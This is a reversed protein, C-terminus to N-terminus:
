FVTAVGPFTMGSGTEIFSTKKSIQLNITKWWPTSHNYSPGGLHCQHYPIQRGIRSVYSVCDPLDGPPSPPLGNWYEQKSFGMSLPAQRAVAWPTVFLLGCHFHSVMRACSPM